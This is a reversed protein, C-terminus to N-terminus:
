LEREEVNGQVTSDTLGRVCVSTGLLVYPSTVHIVCCGHKVQYVLLPCEGGSVLLPFQTPTGCHIPTHPQVYTIAPLTSVGAGEGELICWYLFSSERGVTLQHCSM